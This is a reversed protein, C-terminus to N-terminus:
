GGTQEVVVDIEDGTVMGWERATQKEGVREGDFLLQVSGCRLKQHRCYVEKLKKLEVNEGIKFLVEENDQNKIRLTLM